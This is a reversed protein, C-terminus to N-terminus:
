EVNAAPHTFSFYIKLFQLKWQLTVSVTSGPVKEGRNEEEGEGDKDGFQGGRDPNLHLLQTPFCNLLDIPSMEVAIGLNGRESKM